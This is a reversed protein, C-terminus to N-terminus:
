ILLSSITIFIPPGSNRALEPSTPIKSNLSVLSERCRPLSEATEIKNQPKTPGQAKLTKFEPTDTETIECGCAGSIIASQEDVSGMEDTICCCCNDSNACCCSSQAGPLLSGGLFGIIVLCAMLIRSINKINLM